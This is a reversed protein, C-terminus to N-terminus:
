INGFLLNELESRYRKVVLDIESKPLNDNTEYFKITIVLEKIKELLEKDDM